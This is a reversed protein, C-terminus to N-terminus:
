LDVQFLKVASSEYSNETCVLLGHDNIAVGTPNKIGHSETLVNSLSEEPRSPHYFAVRGSREVGYDAVIM